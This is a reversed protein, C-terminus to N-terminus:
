EKWVFKIQLGVLVRPLKLQSIYKYRFVFRVWTCGWFSLLAIADAVSPLDTRCWKMGGQVHVRVAPLVSFECVGGFM